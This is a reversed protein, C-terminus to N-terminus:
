SGHGYLVLVRKECTFNQHSEACSSDSRAASTINLASVKHTDSNYVHSSLAVCAAKLLPTLSPLKLTCAM